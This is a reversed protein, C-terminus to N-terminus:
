ASICIQRDILFKDKRYTNLYLSVQILRVGEILNVSASTGKNM